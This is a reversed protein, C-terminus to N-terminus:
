LGRVLGEDAFVDHYGVEAAPPAGNIAGEFAADVQAGLESDTDSLDAESKLGSELLSRRFNPLADRELAAALEDKPVYSFDSAASHGALRYTMAEIFTPGGGKRARALASRMVSLTALPDFGDVKVTAMNYARARDALDTSAAYDAIATHEGWQNNQCVFVVPLKWLGAMNMAEHFAGISTAGDGFTTLVARDNGDLQVGLALGVAIPVGSGVIGTSTVFGADVDHLHMAGGKGKSVGNARGYVEAITRTLDAGKAVADGINRYTSVLYDDPRVATGMAACVGELGRVPYTAAKLRGSKVEQGIRGDVLSITKMLRYLRDHDEASADAGSEPSVSSLVDTM